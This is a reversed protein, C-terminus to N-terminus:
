YVSFRIFVWLSEEEKIQKATNNWFFFANGADMHIFAPWAKEKLCIFRPKQTFIQDDDNVTADM